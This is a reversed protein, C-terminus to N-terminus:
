RPICRSSNIAPWRATSTTACPPRVPGACRRGAPPRGAGEIALHRAPQRHQPRDHCTFQDGPDAARGPVAALRRTRRGCRADAGSPMLLYANHFVVDRAREAPAACVAQLASRWAAHINKNSAIERGPRAGYVRRGDAIPLNEFYHFRAGADIRLAAPAQLPRYDAALRALRARHQEDARQLRQPLAVFRREVERDVCAVDRGASCADQAATLADFNVLVDNPAHTRVEALTAVMGPLTWLRDFSAALPQANADFRLRLDTDMFTYRASLPSAHLHYADEVNRGGIVLTTRDALLFKHHLFETLYDWDRRAVEADDRTLPLHSNIADFIPNVQEGFALRLMALQLRAAIGDVGGM